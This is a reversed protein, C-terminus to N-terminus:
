TRKFFEALRVFFGSAENDKRGAFRYAIKLLTHSFAARPNELFLPFQRRVANGVNKDYPLAGLYIPIKGLFRRTLAALRKFTDLGEQESRVMNAIVAIDGGGANVAMKVAAYADALSSPEPTVIVIKRDAAKVFTKVIHGIGAGTDFILFDCMRELQELERVLKMFAVSDLNAMKEIGSGGPVVSIGGPGDLLVDRIAARGEVVDLLSFAPNMGLLINVNALGLDADFLIVRKNLSALALALNISVNTKGVGGKGSTVAITTCARQAGTCRTETLITDLRAHDAAATHEALTRLGQAQDIM